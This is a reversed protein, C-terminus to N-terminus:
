LPKTPCVTLFINRTCKACLTLLHSHVRFQCWHISKTSISVCATQSYSMVLNTIPMM